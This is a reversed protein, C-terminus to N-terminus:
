RGMRKKEDEHIHTVWRVYREGMWKLVRYAGYIALGVGVFFMGIVIWIVFYSDMRGLGGVIIGYYWRSM